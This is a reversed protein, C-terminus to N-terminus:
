KSATYKLQTKTTTPPTTKNFELILTEKNQDFSMSYKNEEINIDLPLDIKIKIVGDKYHITKERGNAYTSSSFIQTSTQKVSVKKGNITDETEPKKDAAKTGHLELAHHIINNKKDSKITVNVDDQKFGPLTIKIKYTNTGDEEQEKIQYKNQEVVEALNREMANFLNSCRDHTKQFIKKAKHTAEVVADSQTNKEYLINRLRRAEQQMQEAEREIDKLTANLNKAGAALNKQTRNFPEIFFPDINIDFFDDSPSTLTFFATCTPINSLIFSFFVCYNFFKKEMINGRKM